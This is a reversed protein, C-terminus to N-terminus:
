KIMNDQTEKSMRLIENFIKQIANQDMDYVKAKNIWNENMQEERNEDFLPLKHNMKELAIQKIIDMRKSLLRLIQDDLLDVEYRLPDITEM